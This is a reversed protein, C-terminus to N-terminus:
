DALRVYIPSGLVIRDINAGKVDKFDAKDVPFLGAFVALGEIKPLSANNSIADKMVERWAYTLASVLPQKGEAVAKVAAIPNM